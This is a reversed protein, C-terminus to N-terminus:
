AELLPEQLADGATVVSGRHCRLLLQALIVLLWGAALVAAASFFVCRAGFRDYVMGSAIGGLGLGVGMYLGQEVVRCGKHAKDLKQLESVVLCVKAM